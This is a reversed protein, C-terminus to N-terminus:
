SLAVALGALARCRVGNNFCRWTHAYVTSLRRQKTSVEHMVEKYRLLRTNSTGRRQRSIMGKREYTHYLLLLTKCLGTFPSLLRSKQSM